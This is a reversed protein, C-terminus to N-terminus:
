KSVREIFARAKAGGDQTVLRLAMSKSEGFKAYFELVEVADLLAQAIEVSLEQAVKREPEFVINEAKRLITNM